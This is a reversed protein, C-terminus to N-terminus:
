DHAVVVVLPPRPHLMRAYSLGQAQDDETLPVAPRKLELVALPAEKCLVLVDARAQARSVAASDIEVVARGFQFQFKTQHGL